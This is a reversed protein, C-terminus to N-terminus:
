WYIFFREPERTSTIQNKVGTHWFKSRYYHIHNIASGYVHCSSLSILVYSSPLLIILDELWRYKYGIRLTVEEIVFAILNSRNSYISKRKVFLSVCSSQRWNSQSIPLLRYMSLRVSTLFFIFYHACSKISSHFSVHFRIWVDLCSDLLCSPEM